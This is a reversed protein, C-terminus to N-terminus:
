PQAVRYTRVTRVTADRNLIGITITRRGNEGAATEPAAEFANRSPVFFEASDMARGAASGGAILVSDNDAPRAAVHNQRPAALPETPEVNGTAPDYLEASALDRLGDTGGAFLVKGNSLTTATFNARPASM